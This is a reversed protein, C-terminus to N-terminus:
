CHASSTSNAVHSFHFLFDVNCLFKSICFRESYVSGRQIYCVRHSVVQALITTLSHTLFLCLVVPNINWLLLM